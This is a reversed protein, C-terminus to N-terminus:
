NDLFPRSHLQGDFRAVEGVPVEFGSRELYVRENGAEVWIPGAELDYWFGYVGWGTIVRFDPPRRAGQQEVTITLERLRLSTETPRELYMVLHAASPEPFELEAAVTREAKVQFPRSLALYKNRQPDWLAALAIGAPMLLGDGLEGIRRRRSLELRVPGEEVEEAGGFLLRLQHHERIRPDDAVAVRGAPIVEMLHVSQGGYFLRSLVHVMDTYPTMSWTGQLWIRYRGSPPVFLKGAAYVLEEGPDDSDTMHVEFGAPDMIGIPEDDRYVAPFVAAGVGGKTMAARVHDWGPLWWREMQGSMDAGLSLVVIVLAACRSRVPNIPGPM